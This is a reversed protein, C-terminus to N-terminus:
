FFKKVGLIAFFPCIQALISLKSCKQGINGLRRQLNEQNKSQSNTKLYEKLFLLHITRSFESIALIQGNTALIQGNKALFHCKQFNKVQLKWVSSHFRRIKPISTTCITKKSFIMSQIGPFNQFPWFKAMQPWFNAMKSWFQCKPFNKAQLKQIRSHFRGIKQIFTTRIHKEELFNYEIHRSFELIVLIKGNTALIQGNTPLIQGNKVLISM